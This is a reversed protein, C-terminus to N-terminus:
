LNYLNLIQVPELYNLCNLSRELKDFQDRKFSHTSPPSIYVLSPDPPQGCASSSPQVVIRPQLLDEMWVDSEPLIYNKLHITRKIELSREALIANKRNM